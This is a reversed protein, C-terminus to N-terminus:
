APSADNKLLDMTQSRLNYKRSIEEVEKAKEENADDKAVVQTMESHSPEVDGESTVSIVKPIESTQNEDLLKVEDVVDKKPKLQEVQEQTLEFVVEEDSEHLHQQQQEQTKKQKRAYM